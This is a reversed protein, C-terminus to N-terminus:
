LTQFMAASSGHERSSRKKSTGRRGGGSANRGLNSSSRLHPLFDGKQAGFDTQMRMGLMKQIAHRKTIGPAAPPLFRANIDPAYEDILEWFAIKGSFSSLSM